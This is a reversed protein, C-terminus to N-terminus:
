APDAARGLATKLVACAKAFMEPCRALAIRIFREGQGHDNWYFHDGPLVGLGVRQLRDVLDVSRTNKDSIRLWEVSITSDPNNIQLGSSVLAERLARRNLDIPQWIAAQLGEQKTDKLYEILLQLIIPSVNL